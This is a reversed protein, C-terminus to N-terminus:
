AVANTFLYGADQWLVIEKLQEAVQVNMGGDIGKEESEWMRVRRSGWEASAAFTPMAGGRVNRVAPDIRLLSAHKGWLRAPTVTQGPKASNYWAEGVYIGNLGLLEAIAQMAVVGASTSAAGVGIKGYVAAVIKPHMSLATAVAQGVVLINPRVLMADMATKIAYTPDSNTFDSWQGTGSLTTRLSSNFNAATQYLSAVRAERALQLLSTTGETATALPDFSSGSDQAKKIDKHPVLDKLAWDKTSDTIDTGGFEVTNAESKRGIVTDPVNLRDETTYKTYVFEEAPVPVRPCVQDAIMNGVQVALAIQTYRAVTQFPAKAM